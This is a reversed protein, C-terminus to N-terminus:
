IFRPSPPLGGYVQQLAGPNLTKVLKQIHTNHVCVCESISLEGRGSCHFPHWVIFLYVGKKKKRCFYDALTSHLDGFDVQMENADTGSETTTSVLHHSPPILPVPLCNLDM